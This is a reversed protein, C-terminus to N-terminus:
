KKVEYMDEFAVMSHHKDKDVIFPEDDLLYEYYEGKIAGWVSSLYYSFRKWWTWYKTWTKIHYIIDDYNFTQRSNEEDAMAFVPSCVSLYGDPIRHRIELHRPFEKHNAPFWSSESPLKKKQSHWHEKIFSGVWFAEGRELSFGVKCKNCLIHDEGM